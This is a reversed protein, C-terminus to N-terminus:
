VLYLPHCTYDLCIKKSNCNRSYAVAQWAAPAEKRYSFRFLLEREYKKDTNEFEFVGELCNVFRYEKDGLFFRGNKFIWKFNDDDILTCEATDLRLSSSEDVDLDTEPATPLPASSRLLSSGSRGFKNFRPKGHDISSISVVVSSADPSSTNASHVHDEMNETAIACEVDDDEDYDDGFPLPFIYCDIKEAPGLKTVDQGFTRIHTGRTIRQVGSLLNVTDLSDSSALLSFIKKVTPSAINANVSCHIKSRWGLLQLQAETAIYIVVQPHVRVSADINM